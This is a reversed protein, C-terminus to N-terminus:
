GQGLEKLATALAAGLRRASAPSLHATLGAGRRGEEEVTFEVRLDDCDECDDTIAVAWSVPPREGGSPHDDPGFDVSQKV